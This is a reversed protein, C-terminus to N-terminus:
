CVPPVFGGSTSLSSTPCSASGVEVEFVVADIMALNPLRTLFVSALNKRGPIDVQKEWWNGEAFNGVM